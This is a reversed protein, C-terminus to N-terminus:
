PRTLRGGCAVWLVFCATVCCLEGVVYLLVMSSLRVARWRPSRWRFLAAVPCLVAGLLVTLVWPGALVPSLVVLVPLVLLRRVM